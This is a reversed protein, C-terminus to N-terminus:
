PGAVDRRCSLPPPPLIEGADHILQSVVARARDDPVNPARIGELIM